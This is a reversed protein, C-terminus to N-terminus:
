AGWISMSLEQSTAPAIPSSLGVTWYLFQPSKMDRALDHSSVTSVAGESSAM